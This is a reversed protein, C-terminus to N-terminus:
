DRTWPTLKTELWSFLATLAVGAVALVTVAAFLYPMNFTDASQNILQGLGARSGFLEAVVVGILGRGISESQLHTHVNVMGPMVCFGSGDIDRDVTGGYAPDVHVIRNGDFAVDIDNRFYHQQLHADWAVAANEAGLPLSVVGFLLNTVFWIALFSVATRNRLLEPITEAARHVPVQWPQTGYASAPPQFVFRSAAAM